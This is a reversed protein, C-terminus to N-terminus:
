VEAKVTLANLARHLQNLREAIDGIADRMLPVAKQDLDSMGKSPAPEAASDQVPVSSDAFEMAPSATQSDAIAEVIKVQNAYANELEHAKDMPVDSLLIVTKDAQKIQPNGISGGSAFGGSVIKVNTAVKAGSDRSRIWAIKRGAIFIEKNFSQDSLRMPNSVEITVRPLEPTGYINRYMGLVADYKEAGYIWGNTKEYHGQLGPAWRQLEPCYPSMVIISDATRTINFLM